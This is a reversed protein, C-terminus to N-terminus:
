VQIYAGYNLDNIPPATSSFGSGTALVYANGQAIIDYGGNASFGSNNVYSVGGTAVFGGGNNYWYAGGEGVWNSSGEIYVGVSNNFYIDPAGAWFDAGGELTVAGYGNVSHSDNGAVYVQGSRWWGGFMTIGSDANSTCIFNGCNLWVFGGNMWVGMHCYSVVCNLSTMCQISGDQVYFGYAGFGWVSVGDIFVIDYCELGSGVGFGGPVGSGPPSAVTQSGTILLYRLSVGGRLILFGSVGGTFSLETAYISRMYVIQNTGDAGSHYGTVSMNSPDPSGGLLAAGQISIRVSNPHSLEVTNTYTWRGAAVMFTVFGSPTIIYQSLWYFAANLDAFDAGAGHVKKVIPTTIFKQGILAQIAQWLQTLDNHDPTLGANQIVTVIEIQDEDFATAPPISGETGTVPNGNIYRPYSGLPPTPTAFPQSYRM